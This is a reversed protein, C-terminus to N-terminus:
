ISHEKESETVKEQMYKYVVTVVLPLIFMGMVGFLKLGLFLSLLTLLPHLGVQKGVIKPESINRVVLVALYVTVLGWFLGTEGKALHIVAWPVLVIGSGFVPLLDVFAIIVAFRVANKVGIILLGATLDVFTILSLLLYGKILGFVNKYLINKIRKFANVREENLAYRLIGKFACFDKAIFCGSIVTVLIGFLFSPVRKFFASIFDSFYEIVKSGLASLSQGAVNGIVSFDGNKSFLKETKETILKAVASLSETYDPIKEYLKILMVYLRSGFFALVSLLILYIGIVMFLAILGQKIKLKESLKFAPKQVSVAIILGIIFPLLVGLFVKLSLFLLVAIVFLYAVLM